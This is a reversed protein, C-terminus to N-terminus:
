EQVPAPPERSSLVYDGAGLRWNYTEVMELIDSRITEDDVKVLDGGDLDDADLARAADKLIGGFATLRRRRLAETYTRLVDVAVKEPLEPDIYDGDKVSYKAAELAAQGGACAIATGDEAKKGRAVQIRVSPKYDVRLAKQWRDILESQNLYKGSQRSSRSFYDADVALIAHIHPHYGKNKRTIEIARFWGKITRRIQRQDLFRQWAASLETLAASLEPGEVNRITLTLFLYRCDHEEQAMNLVRSLQLANRRARRAICMPCLRLQCFNAAQLRRQGSSYLGFQLFTACNLARVGYDPYGAKEYLDALFVAKERKERWNFKGDDLLEEVPVIVEQRGKEYTIYDM